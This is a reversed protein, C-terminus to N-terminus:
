DSRCEPWRSIDRIGLCDRFGARSTGPFMVDGDGGAGRGLGCEGERKAFVVQGSHGEGLSEAHVFLGHAAHQVRAVGGGHAADLGCQAHEAPFEDDLGAGGSCVGPWGGGGTRVAGGGRAPVRDCCERHCRAPRAVHNRTRLRGAAAFRDDIRGRYVIRNATSILFSESTVRPGLRVALDGASDAIVPFEIGFDDVFDVSERWGIDPNSLVGYLSVGRAQADDHLANLAPIYRTAVPCATDLFVLAAAGVKGTSVGIRHQRGKVDTVRVGIRCDTPRILAAYDSTEPGPLARRM